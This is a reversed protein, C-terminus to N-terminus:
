AFASSVHAHHLITHLVHRQKSSLRGYSLAEGKKGVWGVELWRCPVFLFQFKGRIGEDQRRKEVEEELGEIRKNSNEKRGVCVKM